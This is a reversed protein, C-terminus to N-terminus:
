PILLVQSINFFSCPLKCRQSTILDISNLKLRFLHLLVLRFRLFCGACAKFALGGEPAPGVLFEAGVFAAGAEVVALVAAQIVEHAIDVMGQAFVPADQGGAIRSSFGFHVAGLQFPFAKIKIVEGIDVGGLAAFGIIEAVVLAVDEM